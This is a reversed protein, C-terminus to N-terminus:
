FGLLYRVGAELLVLGLIVALLMPGFLLSYLGLSDGEGRVHTLVSLTVSAVAFLGGLPAIFGWRAYLYYPVATQLGLVVVALAVIGFWWKLTTNAFAGTVFRTGFWVALRFAAYAVGGRVAFNLAHSPLGSFLSPVGVVTVGVLGGIGWAVGDSGLASEGTGPM